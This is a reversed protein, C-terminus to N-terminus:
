FVFSNDYSTDMCRNDAVDYENRGIGNILSSSCMKM